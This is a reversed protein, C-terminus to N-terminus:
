ATSRCTYRPLYFMANSLLYCYQTVGTSCSRASNEQGAPSPHTASTVSSLRWKPPVAQLDYGSIGSDEHLKLANLYLFTCVAQFLNNWFKEVIYDTLQAVVNPNPKRMCGLDWTSVAIYHTVSLTILRYGSPALGDKTKNEGRCATFATSVGWM